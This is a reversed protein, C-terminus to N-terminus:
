PRTGFTIKRKHSTDRTVQFGLDTLIKAVADHTEAGLREPGTDVAVVRTRRLVETAGSLVEPEAGEVDCKFLAIDGWGQEAAIADLPRAQVKIPRYAPDNPDAIVSSDAREPASFFTLEEAHSWLVQHFAQVGPLHATNQTLCAFVAPDGEISRVTAGHAACAMAFEGVNAGIDIVMDGPKLTVMSGVGFQRGLRALRHALGRRYMRWRLPSPILIRRGETDVAYGPNLAVMRVPVHPGIHLGSIVNHLLYHARQLPTLRPATM